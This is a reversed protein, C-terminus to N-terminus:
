IVSCRVKSDAISTLIQLTVALQQFIVSVTIVSVVGGYAVYLGVLSGAQYQMCRTNERNIKSNGYREKKNKLGPHPFTCAIKIRGVLLM